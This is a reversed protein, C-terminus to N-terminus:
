PGAHQGDHGEVHAQGADGVDSHERGGVLHNSEGTAAPAAANAPAPLACVSRARRAQGMSSRGNGEQGKGKNMNSFAAGGGMSRRRQGKGSRQAATSGEKTRPPPLRSNNANHKRRGLADRRWMKLRAFNVARSASHFATEAASAVDALQQTSHSGRRESRGLEQAGLLSGHADADSLNLDSLQLITVGAPTPLEVRDMLSNDASAAGQKRNYRDRLIRAEDCEVCLLAM